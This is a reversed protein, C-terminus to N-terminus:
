IWLNRTYKIECIKWFVRSILYVRFKIGKLYKLKLFIFNRAPHTCDLDCSSFISLYLLNLFSIRSSYIGLHTQFETKFNFNLINILKRKLFVERLVPPPWFKICIKNTLSRCPTCYPINNPWYFIRITRPEGLGMCFMDQRWTIRETWDRLSFNSQPLIYLM